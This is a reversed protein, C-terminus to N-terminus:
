PTPNQFKGLYGDPRQGRGIEVPRGREETGLKAAPHLSSAALQDVDELTARARDM